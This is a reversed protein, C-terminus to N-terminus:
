RQGGKVTSVILAANFGGHGRAIVLAHEVHAPRPHGTVLDLNYASPLDPEYPVAPIVGHRMILLACAVDLAAGGAYLRGTLAKPAAVPVGRHGFVEAIAGAEAADLDPRGGADALVVGIREPALGADDLAGSIARSLAGPRSSGPPPDFSAAYGTIAGYAREFAADARELVFMAGGEGPVHGGAARDFPLYARAPDSETSLLGSAIQGALGWPCLPAEMAGAVAVRLTENRLLRRAHGLADLGGAQESVLVSGHGRLGHRISIQGTNVAYFWAFSQYASVAQPGQSWSKQLERQGFEFGGFALSTVVGVDYPDFTGVDMGADDLAGQTAALAFWTVPDSQPLLRAPVRDEPRFGTVEGGVKVPYRAADFRTFPRLGSEGAVTAEWYAPAGLGNPAVVDLGTILCHTSM